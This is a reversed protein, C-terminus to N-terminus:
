SDEIGLTAQQGDGGAEHLRQLYEIPPLRDCRGLGLESLAYGLDKQLEPPMAGLRHRSVGLYHNHQTRLCGRVYNFTISRRASDTHNAGSGHLVAGDWIILSGAPACVASVESPDPTRHDPWTCSGAAFVTSGNEPTFDDLALTVTAVLPMHPRPLLPYHADDRHLGQASCGPDPAM